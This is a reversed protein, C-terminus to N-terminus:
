AAATPRARGAPAPRPRSAAPRAARCRRQRASRAPRWGRRRGASGARARCGTGAPGALLAPQVLRQFLEAPARQDAVDGPLEAEGDGHQTRQLPAAQHPDAPGLPQAIREGIKRRDGRRRGQSGVLLRREGRDLRQAGAVPGHEEAHGPAALRQDVELRHAPGEGGAPARDDEHGLDAQRGLGHAPEATREAILHGHQM